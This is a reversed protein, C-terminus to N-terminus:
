GRLKQASRPFSGPKHNASGTPNRSPKANVVRGSTNGINITPNVVRGNPAQSNPNFDAVSKPRASM